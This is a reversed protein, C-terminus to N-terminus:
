QRIDRVTCAFTVRVFKAIRPLNETVTQRVLQQLFIAHHPYVSGVSFATASLDAVCFYNEKRIVAAM